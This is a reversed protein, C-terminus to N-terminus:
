KNDEGNLFVMVNSKYDDENSPVIHLRVNYKDKKGSFEYAKENEYNKIEDDEKFVEKYHDFIAKSELKSFYYVQFYDKGAVVSGEVKDVGYLPVIDEPFDEPVTKSVTPEPKEEGSNVIDKDEKKEPKTTQPTCGIILSLVLVILIFFNFKKM